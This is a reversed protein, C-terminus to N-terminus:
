GVYLNLPIIPALLTQSKIDELKQFIQTSNVQNSSEQNESNRIWPAWDESREEDEM